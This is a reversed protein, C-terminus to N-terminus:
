EGTPVIMCGHCVELFRAVSFGDSVDCIGFMGFESGGDWDCLESWGGSSGWGCDLLMM